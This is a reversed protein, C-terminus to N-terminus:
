ENKEEPEADHALLFVRRYTGGFDFSKYVRFAITNAHGPKVHETIDFEEDHHYDYWFTAPGRWVTGKYEGLDFEVPEGNVWIQLGKAIISPFFITIKDKGAFTEPVVVDTRYFFAAPARQTNYKVDPSVTVDQEDLKGVSVGMKHYGLLAARNDTDLMGKWQRPLALSAAAGKIKKDFALYQNYLGGTMYPNKQKDDLRVKNMFNPYLKNLKDRVEFCVKMGEAAKGFDGSARALEIADCMADTSRQMDLVTELQTRARETLALKKARALAERCRRRVKPTLILHNDWMENSYLDPIQNMREELINYYEIMPGAAGEFRVKCYEAIVDKYDQRIDWYLRQMLYNDLGCSAWDDYGQTTHGDLGLEHFWPYNRGIIGWRPCIMAMNWCYGMPEYDYYYTEAGVHEAMAMWNELWKRYQRNTKSKPDRVDHLPSVSLPAIVLAMNPHVSVMRPSMMNNSYVLVGYKRDPHVKAVESIVRDLFFFLRDTACPAGMFFDFELSSLSKAEPREDDVLGDEASMSAYQEFPANNFYNVYHDAYLQWVKPNAMNPINRRPQGGSLAYFEDPLVTVDQEVEEVVVNGEADKKRQKVTRKITKTGYKKQAAGWGLPGALAHGQRVMPEGLSRAANGKNRLTWRLYGPAHGYTCWFYRERHSPNQVDNISTTVTDMSPYLEGFPGPMVWRCGLSELFAYVAYLTGRARRGTLILRDGKVRCILGDRDLREIEEILGAKRALETGLLIAPGKPLEANEPRVIELKAGSIKELISQLEEAALEEEDGVRKMEKEIEAVYKAKLKDFEEGEVGPHTRRLREELWATREDLYRDFETQAPLVIAAVPKKDKVLTVEDAVAAAALVGSLVAAVWLVVHTRM